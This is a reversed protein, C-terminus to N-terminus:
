NIIFASPLYRPGAASCPHNIIKDNYIMTTSSGGDLNAANYAGYQLMIDQVEKLTAGVSSLQRGDIVLLLVAGDQRQGIATRPQLGLGGNGIKITAEGNVVLLPGFTVADRIKKKKAEELTYQGLVLVSDENFGILGEKKGPSGYLVKNDQILFGTPTGGTGVGKEDAFGGANIGGIANYTKVIDPLKMGYRGLKDSTAISIRRPDSVILMYGKYKGNSVDKIEIKDSYIPVNKSNNSSVAIASDNSYKDKDDVKNKEMINNITEESLFTKAIYQHSLTSMATTVIMDRTNKFPGYYIMPIDFVFLVGIQICLIIAL